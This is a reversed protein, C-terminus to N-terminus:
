IIKSVEMFNTVFNVLLYALALSIMIYLIRAQIVKNKKLFHNFDLSDLAYLVCPLFVIYLILEM